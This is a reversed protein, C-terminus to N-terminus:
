KKEKRQKTELWLRGDLPAMAKASAAVEKVFRPHQAIKALAEVDGLSSHQGTPQVGFLHQYVSAQRLNPTEGKNIVSKAVVYPDSAKLTGFQPFSKAPCFLANNELLVKFDFGTGNYAVLVPEPGAHKYVWRAFELGVVSWPQATSVDADYLGHVRSAEVPIPIGPNVYSDFTKGDCIASISVIRADKLGTTELDFFVLSM